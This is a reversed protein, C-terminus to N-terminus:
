RPASKKRPTKRNSRPNSPKEETLLKKLMRIEAQQELCLLLLAKYRVESEKLRDAPSKRSEKAEVGKEGEAVERKKIRRGEIKEILAPHNAYLSGRNVGAAKCVAAVSPSLFPSESKLFSLAAEVKEYVTLSSKKAVM